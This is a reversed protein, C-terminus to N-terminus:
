SVRVRDPGRQRPRTSSISARLRCSSSQFSELSIRLSFSRTLSSSPHTVEHDRALSIRSNATASSVNHDELPSSTESDLGPPWRSFHIRCYASLSSGSTSLGGDTRSRLCSIRRQHDSVGSAPLGRYQEADPSGEFSGTQNTAM